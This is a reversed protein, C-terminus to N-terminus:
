LSKVRQSGDLLMGTTPLCCFTSKGGFATANNQTIQENVWWWGYKVTTCSVFFITKMSFLHLCLTTQLYYIASLDRNWSSGQKLSSTRSNKNTCKRWCGEVTYCSAWLRVRRRVKASPTSTSKIQTNWWKMDSAEKDKVTEKQGDLVDWGQGNIFCIQETM